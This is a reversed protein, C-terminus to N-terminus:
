LPHPGPTFSNGKRENDPALMIQLNTEVHLGCVLPHHLPIIHDVHYKTYGAERNLRRMEKYILRIAAPNRWAVKAEKHRLKIRINNKKKWKRHRARYAARNDRFHKNRVDKICDKCNYTMHDASEFNVYFESYPKETNCDTNNCVKSGDTLILSNYIERIRDKSRNVKEKHKKTNAKKNITSCTKCMRPKNCTSLSFSGCRNSCPMGMPKALLDVITKYNARIKRKEKVTDRCDLCWYQRGRDVSFLLNFESKRKMTNCSYCKIKPRYRMDPSLARARDRKDKNKCTKCKNEHGDKMSKRSPFMEMTKTESCGTCKKVHTM